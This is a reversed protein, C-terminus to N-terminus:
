SQTLWEGLLMQEIREHVYAEGRGIKDLLFTGVQCTYFSRRIIIEAIAAIDKYELTLVDQEVVIVSIRCIKFFDLFGNKVPYAFIPIGISLPSSLQKVCNVLINILIAKSSM